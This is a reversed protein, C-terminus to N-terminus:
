TIHCNYLLVAVEHLQMQAGCASLGEKVGSTHRVGGAWVLQTSGTIM